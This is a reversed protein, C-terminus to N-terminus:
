PERVPQRKVDQPPFFQVPKTKTPKWGGHKLVDRIPQLRFGLQSPEAWGNLAETLLDLNYDVYEVYGKEEAAAHARALIHEPTLIEGEPLNGEMAAQIVPIFAQPTPM